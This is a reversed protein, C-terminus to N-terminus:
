SSLQKRENGRAEELLKLIEGISPDFSDSKLEAIVAPSIMCARAGKNLLMRVAEPSKNNIAYLLATKIGYGIVVETRAGRKLLAQMESLDNRKTAEMLPTTKYSGEENFKTQIANVDGQVAEFSIEEESQIEMAHMSSSAILGVSMYLLWPRKCINM